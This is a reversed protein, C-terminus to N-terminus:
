HMLCNSEWQQFQALREHMSIDKHLTPHTTKRLLFFCKGSICNASTQLSLHLPFMWCRSYESIIVLIDDATTRHGFM